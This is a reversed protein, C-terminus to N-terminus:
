RRARELDDEADTPRDAFERLANETYQGLSIGAQSALVKAQKHQAASIHIPKTVVRANLQSKENQLKETEM